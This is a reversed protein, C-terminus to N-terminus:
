FAASSTFNQVLPSLFRDRAISDNGTFTVEDLRVGHNRLYKYEGLGVRKIDIVAVFKLSLGLIGNAPGKGGGWRAERGGM